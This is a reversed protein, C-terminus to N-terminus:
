MRTTSSNRRGHSTTDHQNLIETRSVHVSRVVRYILYGMQIFGSQRHISASENSVHCGVKPACVHVSTTCVYSRIVCPVYDSDQGLVVYHM